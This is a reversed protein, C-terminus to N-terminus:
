SALMNALVGIEEEKDKFSSKITDFSEPNLGCCEELIARCQQTSVEDSLGRKLWHSVAGVLLVEKSEGSEVKESAQAIVMVVMSPLHWRHALWAGAQQHNIGIIESELDLIGGDTQQQSMQLVKNYREPFLHALVLIGIEMLLGSLYVMDPDVPEPSNVASGFRRALEALSLADCWYRKLDFNSCDSIDYAGSVAISFALSKVMNLGLVRIIADEVRVVPNQQGFYASNALGLIRAALGPDQTIVTALEHLSLNEKSMLDLLRTATASLPPIHQLKLVLQKAQKALYM